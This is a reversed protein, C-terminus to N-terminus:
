LLAFSNGLTVPFRSGPRLTDAQDGVFSVAVIAIKGNQDSFVVREAAVLEVVFKTFLAHM